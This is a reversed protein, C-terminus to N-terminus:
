ESHYEYAGADPLPGIPRHGNSADTTIDALPIGADILASDSRLRFDGEEPSVFGPDAVIKVSPEFGPQRPFAPTARARGLWILLSEASTAGRDPCSHWVNGEMMIVPDRPIPGLTLCGSFMNNIFKNLDGAGISIKPSAVAVPSRCGRVTNHAVVNAVSQTPRGELSHDVVFAAAWQWDRELAINKLVNNLVKNHSSGYFSIGSATGGVITNGEILNGHSRGELYIGCGYGNPDGNNEFLNGKVVCSHATEDPGILLGCGGDHNAGFWENESCINRV